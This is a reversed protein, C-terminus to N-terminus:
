SGQRKGLLFARWADVRCDPCQAKVTQEQQRELRLRGVGRGGRSSGSARDSKKPDM